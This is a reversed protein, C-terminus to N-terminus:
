EYLEEAVANLSSSQQVEAKRRSGKAAKIAKPGRNRFASLLGEDSGYRLSSIVARRRRMFLPFADREMAKFVYDSAADFVEPDCRCDKENAETADSLTQRPIITERDASPLLYTYLINEASAHLGARKVSAKELLALDLDSSIGRSSPKYAIYRRHQAKTSTDSRLYESLLEDSDKGEDTYQDSVIRQIISSEKDEEEDDDIGVSSSLERVYTRCLALHQRTDLWFDLFDVSRMTDRMFVYFQYLDYPELTKRSLVDLLTYDQPKEPVTRTTKTDFLGDVLAVVNSDRESVAISPAYSSMSLPRTYYQIDVDTISMDTVGSVISESYVSYPRANIQISSHMANVIRDDDTTSAELGHNTYHEDSADHQFVSQETGPAVDAALRTEIAAPKAAYKDRPTAKLQKSLKQHNKAIHGVHYNLRELRDEIRADAKRALISLVLNLSAKHSEIRTCLQRIKGESTVWGVKRWVGTSLKYAEKALEEFTGKCSELVSEIEKRSSKLTPATKPNDLLARLQCLGNNVAALEDRTRGIEKPADKVKSIFESLEYGTKFGTTVLSAVATAITIPEPM